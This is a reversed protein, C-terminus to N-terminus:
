QMAVFMASLAAIELMGGAPEFRPLVILCECRRFLRLGRELPFFADGTQDRLKGLQQSVRRLNSEAGARGVAAAACEDLLHRLERNDEKIELLFAANITLTRQATVM